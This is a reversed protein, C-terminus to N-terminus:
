LLSIVAPLDVLGQGLPVESLLFGDAYAQLGMDKFHSCLAWPRFSEVVKMPDELLALNNGVDVCIGVWESSLRQPLSLLEGVRWDKHNELALKVGAKRVAGEALELSRRAKAAFQRFTEWDEFTEYRRGNM